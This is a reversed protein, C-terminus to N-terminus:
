NKISQESKGIEVVDNFMSKESQIALQVSDDTGVFFITKVHINYDKYKGSRGWTARIAVRHDFNLARSLVVIIVVNETENPYVCIPKTPNIFTFRDLISHSTQNSKVVNGGLFLENIQEKSNNFLNSNPISNTIVKDQMDPDIYVVITQSHEPVDSSLRFFFSSFAFLFILASIILLIHTYLPSLM